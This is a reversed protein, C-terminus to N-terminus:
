NSITCTGHTADMCICMHGYKRLIDHQFQTQIGLILDDNGVNDMDDPQPEVQAKFLLVPNNPLSRLEEVWACVSTLDNKHRM